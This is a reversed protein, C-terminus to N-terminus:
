PTFDLLAFVFEFLLLSSFPLFYFLRSSVTLLTPRFYECAFSGAKTHSLLWERILATAALSVRPLERVMLLELMYLLLRYTHDIMLGHGTLILFDLLILEAVTISVVLSLTLTLVM